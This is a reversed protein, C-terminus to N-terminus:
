SPFTYLIFCLVHNVLKRSSDNCTVGGPHSLIISIYGKVTKSARLRFDLHQCPGARQSSFLHDTRASEQSRANTSADSGDREKNDYSTRRHTEGFEGRRLLVATMNPKAGREGGGGWGIWYLRKMQKRRLDKNSKNGCQQQKVKQSKPWLATHSRLERVLFPVGVGHMPLCLRSGQVGLSTGLDRRLM